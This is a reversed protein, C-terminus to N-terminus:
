SHLLLQDIPINSLSDSFFLQPVKPNCPRSGSRYLNDKRKFPTTCAQLDRCTVKYRASTALPNINGM